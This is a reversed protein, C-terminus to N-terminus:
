NFADFLLSAQEQQSLYQVLPDSLIQRAIDETVYDNTLQNGVYRHVM